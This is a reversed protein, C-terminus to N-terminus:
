IRFEISEPKFEEMLSLMKQQIEFCSLGFQENRKMTFWEFLRKENEFFKPKKSSESTFIRRSSNRHKKDYIQEQNKIWIILATRPINLNTATKSKSLTKM